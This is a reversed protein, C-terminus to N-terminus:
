GPLYVIGVFYPSPVATLGGVKTLRGTTADVRFWLIGEGLASQQNAVLLFRGGPDMAISRPTAVAGDGTEFGLLTMQGTANLSFMAVSDHGRNSGYLFKGSPHVVVEAAYTEGAFGEPLTSLTQFPTLAGLDPDYDYADITSALENIGYAVRGSPHFALHRPQAQAAVSISPPESPTLAGSGVDLRFQVVQDLGKCPVFAFRGYLDTIIQHPMATGGLGLSSVQFGLSGDAGVAFTSVTGSAYNAVLLWKGSPDLSLHVPQDGGSPLDNMRTLAGTTQDIALAVVQGGPNVENVAYLHRVSSDWALFSPMPGSDGTGQPSLTGQTVDLSFISINDAGGVYAFPRGLPMTAPPVDFGDASNGADESGAGGPGLNM